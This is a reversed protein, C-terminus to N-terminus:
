WLVERIETAIKLIREAVARQRRLTDMMSTDGNGHDISPTPTVDRREGSISSFVLELITGTEKLIADTNELVMKATERQENIQCNETNLYNSM